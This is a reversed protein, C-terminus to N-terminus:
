RLGVAIINSGSAIAIHQQNDFSFTMPSSKWLQSTQFSWLRKGTKADAAALAGSDDAFIVVGGARLLSAKVAHTGEGAYIHGASPGILTLGAGLLM